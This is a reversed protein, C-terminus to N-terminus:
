LLEPLTLVQDVCRLEDEPSHTVYLVQTPTELGIRDIRALMERRHLPDLGQCPEDLVLLEPNKVMARALLLLRQQGYSLKTFDRSALDELHLRSIWDRAQERQSPSPAQYLGISDFFGSLVVRLGDIPQRFQLQFEPSVLGIRRKIDWISEGSGRRRGFLHVENAYALPHDGTVIRILTSKGSGNPGVIKWNEGAKVEWCLKRFVEREEYSIRLNRILVPSTGSPSGARKPSAPAPSPTQSAPAYLAELTEPQLVQGRPGQAFVHGRQLALVHTFEPAIESTRHTVLLIPLGGQILTSLAQRLWLTSDADLGDFPEDLILLAPDNLLARLLLTKRMEGNSFWRLPRDLLASFRLQESLAELRSAHRQQPDMFERATLGHQEKGSYDEWRDKREERAVLTRQQDFSVLTLRSADQWAEAREIHGQFYPKQQRVLGLLTSKGAGNPGLLVWSEGERFSWSLSDLVVTDGLRVSVNDLTLLNPSRPTLGM